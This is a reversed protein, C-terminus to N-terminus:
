FVEAVPVGAVKEWEKVRYRIMQPFRE